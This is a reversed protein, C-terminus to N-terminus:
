QDKMNVTIVLLVGTSIHFIDGTFRKETGTTPQSRYRQSNCLWAIQTAKSANNPDLCYYGSKDTQPQAQSSFLPQDIHNGM